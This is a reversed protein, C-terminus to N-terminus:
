NEEDGGDWEAQCLASVHEYEERTLKGEARWRKLRRLIARREKADIIPKDFISQPSEAQVLFGSKWLFWSMVGFVILVIFVFLFNLM